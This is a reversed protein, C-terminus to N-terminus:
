CSLAFALRLVHLFGVDVRISITTDVTFVLSYLEGSKLFGVGNHLINENIAQRLGVTSM